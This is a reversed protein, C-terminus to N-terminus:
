HDFNSREKICQNYINILLPYNMTATYQKDFSILANKRMQAIKSSCNLVDLQQQLDKINNCEFLLGNQGHTIIESMAGMNSAIVPVGLSLSEIVVLGFPEYWQVPMILFQAKKLAQMAEESTVEGCFTINEQKYTQCFQALPGDGYIRLEIDTERWSDLLFRLGKEAVLRGLFIAYKKNVFQNNVKEELKPAQVAAQKPLDIFNSKVTIKEELFGANVYINKVAISPAIFQDVKKFWLKEKKYREIARALIYTGVYSNKYAKHKVMAYANKKISEENCQGNVFLTASPCLLRYNHLTHVVPTNMDICADFVSPTLLPFFNHVHVIDPNFDAMVRMLQKKYKASYTLRFSVLLKQWFSKIQENSVSFLKVDHGQHKLMAIENAVAVDEGGKKQYFNHCFLIKM